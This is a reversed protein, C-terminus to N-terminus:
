DHGGARGFANMKESYSYLFVGTTIFIRVTYALDYENKAVGLLCFVIDVFRIRGGFVSSAVRSAKKSVTEPWIPASFTELSWM